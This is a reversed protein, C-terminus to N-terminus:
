STGLKTASTMLLSAGNKLAFSYAIRQRQQNDSGGQLTRTLPAISNASMDSDGLNGYVNKLVAKFRM